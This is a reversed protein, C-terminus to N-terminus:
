PLLLLLLSWIHQKEREVKDDVEDVKDVLNITMKLKKIVVMQIVM